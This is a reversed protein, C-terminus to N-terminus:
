GGGEALVDAVAGILAAVEADHTAEAIIRVVPETNSRRIHVWRDHWILKFGDHTDLTADPFRARLRDGVGEWAGERAQVKRKGMAYHPVAEWLEALDRGSAAMHSLLVALAAVADRGLHISAIIVGGNGEGGVGAGHSRMAEVVHAEGVPTRIVPVSFRAAVDEVMRSTSLNTVVPRAETELVAEVVLPLTAEEPLLGRPSCLALRDGDPDIAVGVDAGTREVAEALAGLHPPTPEPDHAFRGDPAEGLIDVRLDLLRSLARVLPGSAGHNCDVVLRPARARIRPVDVLPSSVIRRLHLVTLDPALCSAPWGDWGRRPIDGAEARAYVPALEGATLFSGDPGIFKLGNWPAPNHSATIMVGGSCGLAETAVQAGPTTTVGAVVPTCGVSALGACVAQALSLGSPRSDRAVLVPGGRDLGFAAALSSAREPTFAEGVVGRAGSIGMILRRDDM